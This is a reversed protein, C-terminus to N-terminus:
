IINEIEYKVSHIVNNMECKQLILFYQIFADKISIIIFIVECEAGNISNILYVNTYM